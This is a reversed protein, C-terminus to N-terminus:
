LDFRPADPDCLECNRDFEEAEKQWEAFWKVWAERSAEDTIPPEQGSSM